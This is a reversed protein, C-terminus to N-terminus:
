GRWVLKVCGCERSCLYMDWLARILSDGYYSQVYKHEGHGIHRFALVEWTYGM